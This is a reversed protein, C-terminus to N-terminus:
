PKFSPGVLYPLDEVNLLKNQISTINHNRVLSAKLIFNNIKINNEIITKWMDFHSTPGDNVLIRNIFKKMVNLKGFFYYDSVWYADPQSHQHNEPYDDQHLYIVDDEIEVELISHWNSILDCRHFIVTDYEEINELNNISTKWHYFMKWSNSKSEFNEIKNSDIINIYKVDNYISRIKTEDIQFTTDAYNSEMWTSVMVDVTDLKKLHPIIHEFTRLEGFFILLTKKNGDVKM